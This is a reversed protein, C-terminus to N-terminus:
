ESSCLSSTNEGGSDKSNVIINPSACLIKIFKENNHLAALHIPAMKSHDVINIDINPNYLISKFIKSCDHDISYHLATRGYNDKANIDINSFNSLYISAKVNQNEISYHLATRGYDDQLNLDINPASCISGLIDINENETAFHLITMGNAYKMNIDITPLNCLLKVVDFKDIFCAYQIATFKDIYIENINVNPCSCIYKLADINQNEITYQILNKGNKGELKFFGLESMLRISEFDKENAAKLLIGYFLDLNEPKKQYNLILNQNTQSKQRQLFKAADSIIRNNLIISLFELIEFASDSNEFYNIKAHQSLLLLESIKYKKRLFSFTEMFQNTSFFCYDFIQCLEALSRHNLFTENDYWNNIQKAQYEFDIKIM